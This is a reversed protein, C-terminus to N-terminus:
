GALGLRVARAALGAHVATVAADGAEDGLVRRALPLYADRARAAWTAFWDCLRTRNADSESAAVSIMADVWRSHEAYWDVIFECLISITDGGRVDFRDYVLPYLIGDLALNQAVLVEFWDGIVLTDEVLRRVPQWPPASLWATKARALAAGTSGDLLLGIRGIVQAMGLHDAASFLAAATVATGYGAEAILGCNMNAGWEVHRLPILYDEVASRCEPTLADLLGRKEVFELSRDAAQSMAARAMNYNGYYYQRPDRLAYWDAMRIATRAPDYLEFEPKWTPRYHFNDTAQVDFTGEEYRTAPRDRGFRRALHGFTERKPEVARTRIEITM